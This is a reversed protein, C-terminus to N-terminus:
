QIYEPIIGGLLVHIYKLLTLHTIAPVEHIVKKPKIKTILAKTTQTRTVTPTFDVLAFSGVTHRPM